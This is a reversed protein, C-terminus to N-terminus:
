ISFDNRRRKLMNDRYIRSPRANNFDHAIGGALVGLSELKEFKLKEYEFKKLDTIDRTVSLLHTFGKLSILRASILATIISGDKLRFQTELNQYFGKERLGQVLISRDAPDCWLNLEMVTKGLVEDRSFGTIKTFGQNIDVCCGDDLRSISVADPNFDFTTRFKEESEQM